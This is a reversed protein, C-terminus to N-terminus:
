LFAGSYEEFGATHSMLDLMTVPQNYRLKEAFEQPLYTRIDQDLEIQGAEALQM